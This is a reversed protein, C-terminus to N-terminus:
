QRGATATVSEIVDPYLLAASLFDAGGLKNQEEEFVEIFLRGITKRKM